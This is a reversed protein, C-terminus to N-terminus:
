YGGDRGGVFGVLGLGMGSVEMKWGTEVVMKLGTGGDVDEHGLVWNAGTVVGEGDGRFRGASWCYV